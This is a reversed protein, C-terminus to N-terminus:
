ASNRPLTPPDHIDSVNLPRSKIEPTLNNLADTTVDSRRRRKETKTGM